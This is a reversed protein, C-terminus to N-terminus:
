SDLLFLWGFNPNGKGRMTEVYPYLCNKHGLRFTLTM